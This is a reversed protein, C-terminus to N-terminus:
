IEIFGGVMKSSEVGNVYSRGGNLVVQDGKELIGKAKFKEIGCEVTKDINEQPDVYVPHVNWVLGLQRFTRKNDTIALIPCGAGM